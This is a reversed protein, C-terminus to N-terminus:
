VTSAVSFYARNVPKEGRGHRSATASYTRSKTARYHGPLARSERAEAPSEGASVFNPDFPIERRTAVFLV